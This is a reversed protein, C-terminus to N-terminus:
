RRNLLYSNFQSTLREDQKLEWGDAHTIPVSMRVSSVLWAADADMLAEPGLTEYSCKLGHCEAHRFLDQQTTGHLIGLKPDPTLLRDGHRVILTSTPGELLFGDSTTFVVEDANRRRAERLSAMHQAYSLHKAGFLLWPEETVITSHYGKNLLVVRLGQSRVTTYDPMDSLIIWATPDGASGPGGRTLVLKLSFEKDPHTLAASETLIRRLEVM